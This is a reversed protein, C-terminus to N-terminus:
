KIEVGAYLQEFFDRKDFHIRRTEPVYHAGTMRIKEITKNPDLSIGFEQTVFSLLEDVSMGDIICDRVFDTLNRVHEGRYFIDGTASPIYRIGEHARCLREYFIDDFGLELIKHPVREHINKVTFYREDSFSRSVIKQFDILDSKAIGIKELVSINMYHNRGIQLLDLGSQLESITKRFSRTKLLPSEDLVFYQNGMLLNRYYCEGSGIEERVIFGGSLVYGVSKLMKKNLYINGSSKLVPFGDILDQAIYIDDVLIRKLFNKHITAPKASAHILKREPTVYEPLDTLVRTRTSPGHLGFNQELHNIFADLTIPSLKKILRTFWEIKDAVGIAFEPIRRIKIFDLDLMRKLVNHLEHHDKIDLSRFYSENTEYVFSTSYIGEPLMFLKELNAKEEVIRDVEFYRVKQDYSHICYSSEAITSEFNHLSIRYEEIVSKKGHLEEDLFESYRVHHNKTSDADRGHMFFYKKMLNRKTMKVVDGNEDEFLSEAQLYRIRQDPLLQNLCDSKSKKVGDWIREKKCKLKLLHFTEKKELLVETFFEQDVAYERFIDITRRTEKIHTIPIEALVEDLVQSIRQRSKGQEKAIEAASMGRLRKKLFLKGQGEEMTGMFEDLSRFRKIVDFNSISIYKLKELRRLGRMVEKATMGAADYWSRYSDEEEMQDYVSILRRVITKLDIRDGTKGGHGMLPIERKEGHNDGPCDPPINRGSSKVVKSDGVRREHGVYSEYACMVRKYVSSREVGGTLRKFTEYSMGGLDKFRIRSPILINKVIYESMGGEALVLHYLSTMDDLSAIEQPNLDALLAKISKRITQNPWIEKQVKRRNIAELTVGSEMMRALLRFSVNHGKEVAFDALCLLRGDIHKVPTTVSGEDDKGDMAKAHNEDSSEDPQDVLLGKHRRIYAERAFMVRKYVSLKSAGGVRETFEEFTMGDLDVFRIRAPILISKVVHETVGGDILVLHYLSTMGQLSDMEQPTMNYLFSKVKRRTVFNPWIDDPTKRRNIDELTVGSEMMKLISRFNINHKKEAALDVLCLLREDVRKEHQSQSM